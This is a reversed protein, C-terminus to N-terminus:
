LTEWSLKRLTTNPEGYFGTLCWKCNSNSLSVMADIYRKNYSRVDVTMDNKLMLTLGGSYGEAEVSIGFIHLSQKLNDIRKEKM